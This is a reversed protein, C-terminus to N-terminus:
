IGSLDDDLMIQCPWFDFTPDSLLHTGKENSSIWARCVKKGEVTYQVMFVWFEGAIAPVVVASSDESIRSSIIPDEPNEKDFLGFCLDGLINRYTDIILTNPELMMLATSTYDGTAQMVITPHGEWECPAWDICPQGLELM